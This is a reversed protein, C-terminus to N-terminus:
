MDREESALQTKLTLERAPEYIARLLNDATFRQTCLLSKGCQHVNCSLSFSSSL